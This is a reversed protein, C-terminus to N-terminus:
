GTRQEQRAKPKDVADADAIAGIAAIAQEQRTRALEDNKGSCPCYNYHADPSWAALEQCLSRSRLSEGETLAM